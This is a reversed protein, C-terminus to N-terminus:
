FRPKYDPYQWAPNIKRDRRYQTLMQEHMERQVGVFREGIIRAPVGAVIAYAPVNKTVVSGAAIVAGNGIQVGHLIIAGHGVWVDDGIYVTQNDKRGSFCAPVGVKDIRHDGGVVSVKSALMTFNGIETKSAIWSHSGIFVYDDVRLAYPLIDVGKGCYFNRGKRDLKYRFALLWAMRVQRLIRKIFKLLFRM